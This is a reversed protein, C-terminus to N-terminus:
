IDVIVRARWEEGVKAVSLSHYTIAKVERALHHRQPDIGEGRAVAVLSTGEIKIDFGCFVMRKVEFLYLLESLWDFLLDALSDSQVVIRREVRPLVDGSNEVVLALFGRGAETFLGNLDGSALGLGIDATHELIEFM